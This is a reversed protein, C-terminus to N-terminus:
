SFADAPDVQREVQKCLIRAPEGSSRRTRGLEVARWRRGHLDFEQGPQLVAEGLITAHHTRGNPYELSVLSEVAVTSGALKESAANM